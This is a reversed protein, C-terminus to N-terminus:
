PPVKETDVRDNEFVSIGDDTLPIKSISASSGKKFNKAKVGTKKPRKLAMSV